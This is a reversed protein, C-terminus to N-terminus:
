TFSGFILVVPKRGFSDSLTISKKGDPTFLKFDPARDGLAPGECWSGVDGDVFAKLLMKKMAPSKAGGGGGQGGKKAQMFLPILDDPTLTSSGKTLKKFYEQWEEATVQGDGDDISGFLAKAQASAKSLPSDASWDLDVATIRGDRDRDLINFWTQPGPFEDRDIAGDQDADFREALQDFTFRTQTPKNWGTSAKPGYLINMLRATAEREWVYKVSSGIWGPGDTKAVCVFRLVDNVPLPPDAQAPPLALVGGGLALLVFLRKM